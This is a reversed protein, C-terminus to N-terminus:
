AVIMDYLVSAQGLNLDSGSLLKCFVEESLPEFKLEYEKESEEKMCEELAKEVKNFTYMEEPSVPMHAHVKMGIEIFGEPSIKELSDNRYKNLKDAIEKLKNNIKIASIMEPFPLKDMKTLSLLSYTLSIKEATAKLVKNNKSSM